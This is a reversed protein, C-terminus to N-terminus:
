LKLARGIGFVSGIPNWLFDEWWGEFEGRMNKKYQKHYNGLSLEWAFTGLSFNGLSFKYAFTGLRFNVLSLELAGWQREWRDCWIWLPTPPEHMVTGPPHPEVQGLDDVWTVIALPPM